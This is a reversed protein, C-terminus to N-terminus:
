SAQFVLKDPNERWKRSFNELQEFTLETQM